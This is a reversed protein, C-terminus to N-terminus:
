KTYLKFYQESEFEVEYHVEGYKQLEKCYEKVIYICIIIYEDKTKKETDNVFMLYIIDKSTKTIGDYKLMADFAEEKLKLSKTAIFKLASVVDNKTCNM